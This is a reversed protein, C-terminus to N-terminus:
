RSILKKKKFRPCNLKELLVPEIPFFLQLFKSIVSPFIYCFDTFGVVFFPSSSNIESVSLLSDQCVSIDLYGEFQLRSSNSLLMSVM